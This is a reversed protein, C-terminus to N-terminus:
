SCSSVSFKARKKKEKNKFIELLVYMLFWARLIKPFSFCPRKWVWDQKYDWLSLFRHIIFHSKMVYVFLIYSWACLKTTVPLMLWHGSLTQSYGNIAWVVVMPRIRWETANPLSLLLPDLQNSEPRSQYWPSQRYVLKDSGGTIFSDVAWSFGFSCLSYKLPHSTASFRVYQMCGCLLSNSAMRLVNMTCSHSLRQDFLFFHLIKSFFYYNLLLTPILVTIVWSIGRCHTLTSSSVLCRQLLRSEQKLELSGWIIGGSVNKYPVTPCIPTFAKSEGFPDETESYMSSNLM